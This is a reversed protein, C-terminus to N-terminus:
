GRALVMLCGASPVHAPLGGLLESLSSGLGALRGPGISYDLEVPPRPPIEVANEVRQRCALNRYKGQPAAGAM